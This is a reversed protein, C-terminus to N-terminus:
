KDLRKIMHHYRHDGIMMEDDVEFGMKKYLKEANPNELDVNLSVVQYNQDKLQDFIATLLSSGIGQGQYDPSVALTDLYWENPKAEKDTFLKTETPIDFEPFFQVLDQDIEDEDAEPYGVAIGVPQDDKNTAVLTRRFSYRYNDTLFGKGILEKLNQDGIEKFIPLQMEDFVIKILPLVFQQDKETATRIM